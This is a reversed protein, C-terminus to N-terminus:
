VFLYDYELNLTVDENKQKEDHYGREIGMLTSLQASQCLDSQTLGKCKTDTIICLRDNPPSNEDCLPDRM